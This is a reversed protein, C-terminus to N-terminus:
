VSFNKFVIDCPPSLKIAFAPCNKYSSAALTAALTFAPVDKSSNVGKSFNAM